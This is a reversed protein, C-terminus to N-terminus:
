IHRIDQGVKEGSYKSCVVDGTVTQIHNTEGQVNYNMAGDFARTNTGSSNTITYGGDSNMSWGVPVNGTSQIYENYGSGFFEKTGMWELDIDENFEKAKLTGLEANSVSVSGGEAFEVNVGNPTREIGVVASDNPINKASLQDDVLDRISQASSYQGEGIKVFGENMDSTRNTLPSNNLMARYDLANGYEDRVSDNLDALSTASTRLSGIANGESDEIRYAGDNMAVANLDSNSDLGLKEMSENSLLGNEGSLPLSEGAAHHPMGINMNSDNRMWGIAEGDTGKIIAGDADRLPVWAEGDPKKSLAIEGMAGSEVAFKFGDATSELPNFGALQGVAGAVKAMDSLQNKNFSGVLGTPINGVRNALSSNLASKARENSPDRKVKANNYSNRLADASGRAKQKAYSRAKDGANPNGSAMRQESQQQRRQHNMALSSGTRVLGVAAHVGGRIEDLMGGTYVTDLGISKMYSDMKQGAILFALIVITFTMPNGVTGSSWSVELASVDTGLGSGSTFNYMANIAGRIFVINFTMLLLQNFVTKVFTYFVQETNKTTFTSFIMPSFLFSLCVVVYREAAELLLKFFNFFIAFLCGIIVWSAALTANTNDGFSTKYQESLSTWPVSSMTSSDTYNSNFVQAVAQYPVSAIDFEWQIIQTSYMVLVITIMFRVALKVSDEYDDTIPSFLNKFLRMSALLITLGWGVGTFIPLLDELMPFTLFFQETHLNFFAFFGQTIIDFADAMNTLIWEVLEDWIWGM